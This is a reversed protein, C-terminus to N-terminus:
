RTVLTGPLSAVLNDPITDHALGSNLLRLGLRRFRVRNERSMRRYAEVIDREERSLPPGECIMPPSM